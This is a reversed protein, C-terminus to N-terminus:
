KPGTRSPFPPSVLIRCTTSFLPAGSLVINPTPRTVETQACLRLLKAPCPSQGAVWEERLGLM